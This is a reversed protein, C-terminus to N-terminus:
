ARDLSFSSCLSIKKKHVKPWNFPKTRCSAFFIATPISLGPHRPKFYFGMRMRLKECSLQIESLSLHKILFLLM